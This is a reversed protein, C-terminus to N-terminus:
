LLNSAIKFTQSCAPSNQTSRVQACRGPKTCVVVHLKVLVVVKAKMRLGVSLMLDERTMGREQKTIYKHETNPVSDQCYKCCTLMSRYVVTCKESYCHLILHHRPQKFIAISTSCIEDRADEFRYRCYMLILICHSLQVCSIIIHKNFTSVQKM